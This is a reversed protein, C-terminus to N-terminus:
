IELFLKGSAINMSAGIINRGKYKLDAISCFEVKLDKPKSIGENKLLETIIKHASIKKTCNEVCYDKFKKSMKFEIKM